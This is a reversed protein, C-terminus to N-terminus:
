RRALLFHEPGSFRSADIKNPLSKPFAIIKKSTKAAISRPMSLNGFPSAPQSAPQAPSAPLNMTINMNMLSPHKVSDITIYPHKVRYITVHHQETGAFKFLWQLRGRARLRESRPREHARLRRRPGQRRRADGARPQGRAGQRVEGSCSRIHKKIRQIM